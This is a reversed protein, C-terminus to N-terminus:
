FLIYRSNAGSLPLNQHEHFENKHGFTLDSYDGIQAIENLCVAGTRKPSPYTFSIICKCM